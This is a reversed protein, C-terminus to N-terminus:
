NTYLLTTTVFSMMAGPIGHGACDGVALFCTDSFEKKIFTSTAV